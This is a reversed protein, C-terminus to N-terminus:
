CVDLGGTAVPEGADLCILRQGNSKRTRVEIGRARLANSHRRVADSVAKASTPWHKGNGKDTDVTYDDLKKRLDTATGEWCGLLKAFSVLATAFSSADIEATVADSRNDAYIGLFGDVARSAVVWRAFDAMRPADDLRTSDLNAIATSTADLLAGLIAPHAQQWATAMTREDRVADLTPLTLVITRDLLDGRSAIEPIGNVIVPRAAYLTAEENDTYLRRGGDGGGTALRCLADSMEATLHSLNDYNLIRCHKAAIALDRPNRPTARSITRAPDILARLQRATTSKGSGQEGYLALHAYPGAPMMVGVLWALLLAFDDDSGTNVFPRLLYLSGGRTPEPLPLADTSRQFKVPSIDLLRWGAADVEVVQWSDDFLDLYIADGAHGIRTFV